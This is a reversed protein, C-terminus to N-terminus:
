KKSNRYSNKIHSLTIPYRTHFFTMMRKDQYQVYTWGIDDTKDSKLRRSVREWFQNNIYQSSNNLLGILEKFNRNQINMNNKYNPNIRNPFNARFIYNDYEVEAETFCLQQIKNVLNEIIIDTNKNEKSDIKNGIKKDVYPYPTILGGKLIYRLKKPETPNKFSDSPGVILGNVLISEEFFNISEVESLMELNIRAIDAFKGDQWRLIHLERDLSNGGNWRLLIIAADLGISNKNSNIIFLKNIDDPDKSIFLSGYLPNTGDDTPGEYEGNKFQVLIKGLLFKSNKLIEYARSKSPLARDQYKSSNINTTSHTSKPDKESIINSYLNSQLNNNNSEYKAIGVTDKENKSSFYRKKIEIAESYNSNAAKTIWEAARSHDEKVGRGLYYALCIEVQAELNGNEAAREFWYAAISSDSRVGRGSSYIKALKMQASLDGKRATVELLKIEDSANDVSQHETLPYANDAAWMPFPLYFMVLFAIRLSRM